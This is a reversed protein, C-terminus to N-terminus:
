EVPSLSLPTHNTDLAAVPVQLSLNMIQKTTPEIFGFASARARLTLLSSASAVEIALSEHIDSELRVQADLQGMQKGLTALENSVVVQVILLVVATIPLIIEAIRLINKM